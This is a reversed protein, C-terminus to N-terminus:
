YGNHPGRRYGGRAWAPPGEWVPRMYGDGYDDGPRQRQQEYAARQQAAEDARRRQAQYAARQRENDLAAELREADLGVRRREAEATAAQAQATQLQAQAIAQAHAQAEARARADAVAAQRARAQGAAQAGCTKLNPIEAEAGALSGAVPEEALWAIQLLAGKRLAVQTLDSLVLEGVTPDATRLMLNAYAKQNIRISLFAREPIDDKSFRLAVRDGDSVLAVPMIAGSRGTLELEIRCSAEGPSILWALPPAAPAPAAAAAGAVLVALAAM